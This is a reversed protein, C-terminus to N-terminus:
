NRRTYRRNRKHTKRRGGEVHGFLNALGDVNNAATSASNPHIKNYERPPLIEQLILDLMPISIYEVPKTIRSASNVINTSRTKRM